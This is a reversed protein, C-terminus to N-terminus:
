WGMSDLPSLRPVDTYTEAETPMNFTATTAATTAAIGVTTVQIIDAAAISDTYFSAAPVTITGYTTMASMSTCGTPYMSAGGGAQSSVFLAASTVTGTTKINTGETYTSSTGATVINAFSNHCFVGGTKGTCGSVPNTIPDASADPSTTITTLGLCMGRPAKMYTTDDTGATAVPIVCIGYFMNDGLAGFQAAYNVTMTAKYGDTADNDAPPDGGELKITASFCNYGAIYTGNAAATKGTTCLPIDKSTGDSSIDRWSRWGRKLPWGAKTCASITRPPTRPHCGL